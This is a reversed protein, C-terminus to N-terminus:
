NRILNSILYGLPHQYKAFMAPVHGLLIVMNIILTIIGLSICACQPEKWHGEEWSIKKVFVCMLITLIIMLSFAAIIKTGALTQIYAMSEYLAVEGGKGLVSLKQELIKLIEQERETM